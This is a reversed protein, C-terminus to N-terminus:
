PLSMVVDAFRHGLEIMGAENYHIGDPLFPLDDTDFWYVNPINNAVDVQAQRVMDAHPQGADRIRGLIFPMEPDDVFYRMSSIFSTLNKAYAKARYEKDSDSEGQM